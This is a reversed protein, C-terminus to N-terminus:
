KASFSDVLDASFESLTLDTGQAGILSIGLPVDHQKVMPLTIQPTGTLPSICLLYTSQLRTANIEDLPASKLPAVSAATPLCLLTDPTILENVRDIIGQRQAYAERYEQLTITSAWELREKPGRSLRPRYKRVWGGYSQWVEYGQIIRFIEVWKDLGEPSVTVKEVSTLANGIHKIAPNLADAVDQNVANFCDEAILLKKFQVNEKDNGLMERAVTKFTDPTNAVFGLVDMSECYPAEGDTPVRKYTPRIGLVGNYSAPVRVSGLCDSGLAFDVLGGATASASGSSSGGTLRRPDHPNVPSGYNWNEGSISYCLEDCVTKGVLDAGAELLKTIASSTFDDPDSTRLWEPHGNGWTSGKIKLVDKVGFVLGKLPGEGSGELAIHNDRVFSQLLDYPPEDSVSLRPNNLMTNISM